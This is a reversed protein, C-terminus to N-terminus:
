SEGLGWRPFLETFARTLGYSGTNWDHGTGPAEFYDTQMGAAKAAAAMQQAWPKFTQDNEGVAFTAHTDTFPTGAALLSLPLAADYAAENGGFGGRITTAPDGLSPVLEGSVDIITGFLQPYGAGLQIACTGGQSFGAIAWNARDDAVPLNKKIWAPVDQTLYTASKGFTASDVCMPNRTPDGLQDPSVVIPALGEHAQAWADLQARMRGAVLPDDPSGPQGSLLVVVPLAPPDATLAAPPLYVVAPRAVFGSAPNPIDVSSVAGVSPMDGPAVWDAVTPRTTSPTDALDPLPDGAFASLGFISRVTVYQHVDINVGMAAVAIIVIMAPATALRRWLRARRLGIALMALVAFAGCIWMHSPLSLGVGFVDLRHIVIWLTLVGVTAGILGALLVAAIWRRFPWRTSPRILVAGIVIVVAFAMLSVVLPGSVISLDLVTNM